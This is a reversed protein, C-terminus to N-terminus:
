EVKFKATADLLSDSLYHLNKAVDRVASLSDMTEEFSMHMNSVNEVVMSAVSTQEETAAAIQSNMGNIELIQESIKDISQGTSEAAEANNTAMDRASNMANVADSAATTLTSLLERIENTSHSTRSALERVEDAVVAFGRGQEGARAAEIAANLALLNTQEAISTIVNLIQTVNKTDNALQNITSSAQNIEESLTRSETVSRQIQTKSQEVEREATQAAQSANAASHSIDAVSQRMEEMSQKVIDADSTQKTTAREAREMGQVLRTSNEMLPECVAIVELVAAKLLQIFANFNISVQGIEDKAHVELQTSLSGKGDALLRLNNAAASASSGIGRAIWISTVILLILSVVSVVLMLNLANDSRAKTAQVLEFFRDDARTQAQKFGALVAEYQQTKQQAQQQIKSFDATGDIMSTAISSSTQAYLELQKKTDAHVYSDNISIINQLNENITKYTQAASDVLDSEGFTVAQTYLEDLKELLAVNASTLKVVQYSSKELEDLSIKNDNMAIFNTVVIIVFATIAICTIAHIKKTISLNNFSIGASM